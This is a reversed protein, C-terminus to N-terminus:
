VFYYLSDSAEEHIVYNTFISRAKVIESEKEYCKEGNIDLSVSRKEM